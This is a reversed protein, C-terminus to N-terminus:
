ENTEEEYYAVLSTNSTITTEEDFKQNNIQWEIFKYGEKEALPLKNLKTYKEITIPDIINGGLTDFTITVYQIKEWVAKLTINETVKTDFSFEQDNLTWKLFKYGERKPTEPIDITSGKIINQTSVVLGDYIDFTITIEDKKFKATLIIDKTVKNSFDYKEEGVFWGLFIHDKKIPEEPEEITKNEEVMIKETYNETIFTITYDNILDPAEIWNATLTIDENIPSNENYELGDKLWNVFLYGEKTPQKIDKITEGKNITVSELKTGGLTDFTVTYTKNGCGTLILFLSLFLIKKNKM